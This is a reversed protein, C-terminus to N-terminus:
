KTRQDLWQRFQLDFAREPALAYEAIQASVADSPLSDPWRPRNRLNEGRVAELILSSMGKIWWAEVARGYAATTQLPVLLLGAM